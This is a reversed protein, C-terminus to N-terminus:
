LTMAAHAMVDAVEGAPFTTRGGAREKVQVFLLEGNPLVCDVDETGEPTVRAVIAESTGARALLYATVATQFRVGAVNRAGQRTKKWLAEIEANSITADIAPEESQM